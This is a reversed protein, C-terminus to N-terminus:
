VRSAVLAALAAVAAAMWSLSLRSAAGLFVIQSFCCVSVWDAGAGVLLSLLRPRLCTASLKVHVMDCRDVGAPNLLFRL